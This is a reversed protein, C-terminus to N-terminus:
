MLERLSDTIIQWTSVIHKEEVYTQGINMRIIIRGDIKTKTLFAKGSSNIKDLFKLNFDNILETGINKHPIARFCVLNAIRPAMIEMCDNEVIQQEIWEALKIHHRIKKKLGEVGFSRIVFWLKLARFRRGLQIGWDKYNIVNQTKIKLYEPLIDFTKTLLETNQVYYASFDFNTFMWKHPNFVFSDAKEIGKIWHRNEECLLASGLHAADVHHWIDYKICIDGISDINDIATTGTTGIASIVALPHYGNKIDDNIKTELDTLNISFDNNLKIKILNDAGFGAIRVDKEISSHAEKSCYIRFKNNDKFGEKNIQFNSYKERASLLSVLTSTSATDQIVGRFCDPLGTMFRLWEMVRSELETGAPSTEWSFVNVGIGATLFEGLLSPFSSNANFYAYFNPSQWHTIGPMVIKNFDELIATLSEGELPAYEPLRNYVDGPEVISKVPYKEINQYYDAILDVIQYAEKRFKEIESNDM